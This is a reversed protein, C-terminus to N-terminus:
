HGDYVSGIKQNLSVNLERDQVLTELLKVSITWDRSNPRAPGLLQRLRQVETETLDILM